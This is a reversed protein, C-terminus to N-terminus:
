TEFHGPVTFLAYITHLFFHTYIVYFYTLILRIKNQRQFVLPFQLRICRCESPSFFPVAEVATVYLLCM